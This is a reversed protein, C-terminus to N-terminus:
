PLKQCPYNHFFLAHEQNGLIRVDHFECDPRKMIYFLSVVCFINHILKFIREGLMDAKQQRGESGLPFKNEPIVKM